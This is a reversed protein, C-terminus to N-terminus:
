ALPEVIPRRIISSNLSFSGRFTVYYIHVIIIFYYNIMIIVNFVVGHQKTKFRTQFRWLNLKSNFVGYIHLILNQCFNFNENLQLFSIM